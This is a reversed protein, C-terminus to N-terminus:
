KELVGGVDPNAAYGAVAMNVAMAASLLIAVHKKKM